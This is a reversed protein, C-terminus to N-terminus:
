ADKMRVAKWLAVFLEALVREGGVGPRCPPCPQSIRGPNGAPLEIALEFAIPRKRGKVVRRLATLKKQLTGLCRDVQPPPQTFKTM